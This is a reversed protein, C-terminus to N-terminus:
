PDWKEYTFHYILNLYKIFFIKSFSYYSIRHLVYLYRFYTLHKPPCDAILKDQSFDSQRWPVNNNTILLMLVGPKQSVMAYDIIRYYITCKMSLFAYDNILRYHCFLSVSIFQLVRWNSVQPYFSWVFYRKYWPVRYKGDFIGSAPLTKSLVKWSLAWGKHVRVLTDPFFIGIAYLFFPLYERPLLVEQQFM